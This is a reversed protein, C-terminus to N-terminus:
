NIKRFALQQKILNRFKMNTKYEGAISLAGNYVGIVLPLGSASGQELFFNHFLIGFANSSGFGLM